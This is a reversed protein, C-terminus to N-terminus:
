LYVVGEGTLMCDGVQTFTRKPIGAKIVECTSFADEGKSRVVGGFVNKMQNFEGDSGTGPFMVNVLEVLILKKTDYTPSLTASDFRAYVHGNRFYLQLNPVWSDSLKLKAQPAVSGAVASAMPRNERIIYQAQYGIINHNTPSAELKIRDCEYIKPFYPKDYYLFNTFDNVVMAAGKFCVGHETLNTCIGYIWEKEKLHSNNPGCPFIGNSNLVLAQSLMKEDYAEKNLFLDKTHKESLLFQLYRAGEYMLRMDRGGMEDYPFLEDSLKHFYVLRATYSNLAHIFPYSIFSFAASAYPHTFHYKRPSYMQELDDVSQLMLNHSGTMLIMDLSFYKMLEQVYYWREYIFFYPRQPKHHPYLNSANLFRDRMKRIQPNYITTLNVVIINLQDLIEQENQHPTFNIIAYITSNPSAWRTANLAPFFFKQASFDASNEPPVANFANIDHSHNGNFPPFYLVPTLVIPINSSSSVHIFQFILAFVCFCTKGMVSTIM